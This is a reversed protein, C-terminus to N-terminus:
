KVAHGEPYAGSGAQNAVFDAQPEHCRSFILHALMQVLMKLLQRRLIFLGPCNKLLHTDVFFLM